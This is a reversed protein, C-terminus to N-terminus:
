FLVSCLFTQDCCCGVKCYHEKRIVRDGCVSEREREIQREKKKVLQANLICRIANTRSPVRCLHYYQTRTRLPTKPNGKVLSHFLPPQLPVQSVREAAAAAAALRPVPNETFLVCLDTCGFFNVFM